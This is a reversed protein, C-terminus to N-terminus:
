NMWGFLRAANATTQWAIKEVALHRERALYEAITRVNAPENRRGRRPEPTLFPADTEIVFRDPPVSRALERLAHSKKFTVPGSFGILFGLEFARQAADVGDFFSHLVGRTVRKLQQAFKRDLMALIADTTQRNHIIVPKGIEIALDIQAEFARAQVDPATKKWYCDLGIEGIAVVKPHAALVRIEDLMARDFGAADNPHVGVAAYVSAHQEALSVAERSSAVDVGITVMRTVGADVARQIVEGRDADFARWHLHCHTDVLQPSSSGEDGARAACRLPNTM